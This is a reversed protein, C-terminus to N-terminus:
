AHACSQFIVSVSVIGDRSTQLFRQGDWPLDTVFLEVGAPLNTLSYFMVVDPDNSNILFFPVLGPELLSTCANPRAPPRQSPPLAAEIDACTPYTRTLTTDTHTEPVVVVQEEQPEGFIQQALQPYDVFPNRNGQWRTCARDNRAMEEENPPDQEHWYLIESLYGMTSKSGELLINCDELSLSKYRIDMYMLARAIDGRHQEPLCEISCYREFNGIDNTSLNSYSIM